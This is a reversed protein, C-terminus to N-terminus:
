AADQSGLSSASRQNLNTERSLTDRDKWAARGRSKSSSTLAWAGQLARTASSSSRKRNMRGLKRPVARPVSLFATITRESAVDYVQPCTAPGHTANCVLRQELTTIRTSVLLSSDMTQQAGIQEYFECTRKNGAYPLASQACYAADAPSGYDNLCGPDTPDCNGQTPQQLTFRCAGTLPSKELYLGEYWLSYLGVYGSVALTLLLKTLGLRRDRIQVYKITSYSFVDDVDRGFLHSPCVMSTRAPLVAPLRRAWARPQQM